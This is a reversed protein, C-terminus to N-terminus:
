GIVNFINRKEVCAREFTKWGRISAIVFVVIIGSRYFM